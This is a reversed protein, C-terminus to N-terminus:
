SNASLSTSARRVRCASASASSSPPGSASRSSPPPRVVSGRRASARPGPSAVAPDRGSSRRRVAPRGIQRQEVVAGHRLDAAARIPERRAAADAPRAGASAAAPARAATRQMLHQSVAPVSSRGKGRYARRSARAAGQRTSAPAAPAPRNRAGRRPPVAPRPAARRRAVGDREVERQAQAPEGGCSQRTSGGSGRSANKRIM